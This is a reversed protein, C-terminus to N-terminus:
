KILAVTVLANSWIHQVSCIYSGLPLGALAPFSVAPPARMAEFIKPLSFSAHHVPTFMNGAVVHPIVPAAGGAFDAPRLPAYFRILANAELMIKTLM